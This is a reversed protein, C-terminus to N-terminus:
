SQVEKDVWKMISTRAMPKGDRQFFSDQSGFYGDVEWEDGVLERAVNLAVAKRQDSSCYSDTDDPLEFEIQERIRQKGTKDLNKLEIDCDIRSLGTVCQAFDALSMRIQAFQVVADIDALTISIHGDGDGSSPRTISIKGKM